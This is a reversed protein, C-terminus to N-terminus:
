YWMWDEDTDDNTTTTGKDDGVNEIILEIDKSTTAGSM